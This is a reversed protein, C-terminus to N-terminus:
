GRLASGAAEARASTRGGRAWGQAPLVGAIAAERGGSAGTGFELPDHLNQAPHRNLIQLRYPSPVCTLSAAPGLQGSHPSGRAASPVGAQEQARRADSAWRSVLVASAASASSKSGTRMRGNTSISTLEPGTSSREASVLASSVCDGLETPDPAAGAAGASSASSSMGIGEVGVLRRWLGEPMTGSRRRRCRASITLPAPAATATRTVPPMMPPRSQYSLGERSSETDPPTRAPRGCSRGEPLLGDGCSGERVAAEGCDDAM